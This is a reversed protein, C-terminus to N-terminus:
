RGIHEAYTGNLLRRVGELYFEKWSQEECNHQIPFYLVGNKQAAEADDPANGCVLVHDRSYGKKLLEHICFVKSGADQALVVDAHELLGYMDWEDLVTRLDDTSLVAIDANRRAQALAARVGPFPQKEEDSNPAAAHICCSSAVCILFRKRKTFKKITDSM